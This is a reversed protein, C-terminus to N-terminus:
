RRASMHVSLLEVLGETAISTMDREAAEGFLSVELQHISGPIMHGLLTGLRRTLVLYPQLKVMEEASVAPLNIANIPEGTRLYICIQQAIEM